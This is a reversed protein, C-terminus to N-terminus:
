TILDSLEPINKAIERRQTQNNNRDNKRKRIQWTLRTVLDIDTEGNVNRQLTM